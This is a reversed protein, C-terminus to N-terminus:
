RLFVNERHYFLNKCLESSPETIFIKNCDINILTSNANSLRQSILIKMNEDFTILGIDFMKDYLPSLLLGNEGSIRENNDASRWPKIHSAILLRTDDIGTIICRNHYKELIRQRFIGQGMRAQIIAEKETEIIENDDIIRNIERAIIPSIENEPKFQMDKLGWIGEGLGYASYFLDKGSTYSKTQSCHRQIVASVNKMWNLNTHISPLKDNIEIYRNIEKLSAMGDYYKLASIIESLYTVENSM